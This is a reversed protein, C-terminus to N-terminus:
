ASCPDTSCPCEFSNCGCIQLIFERWPDLRQAPHIRGHLRQLTARQQHVKVHAATIAVKVRTKNWEPTTQKRLHLWVHHAKVSDRARQVPPLLSKKRSNKNQPQFRHSKIGFKGSKVWVGWGLILFSSASQPAAGTGPVPCKRSSPTTVHSPWARLKCKPRALHTGHSPLAPCHSSSGPGAPAKRLTVLSLSLFRFSVPTRAMPLHPHLLGLLNAPLTLTMLVM